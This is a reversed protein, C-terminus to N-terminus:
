KTYKDFIKTNDINCNLKLFSVKYKLIFNHFYKIKVFDKETTIFITEEDGSKIMEDIDSKTYRHHDPYIYKKYIKGCESEVLNIFSSPKSIGAFLIIKKDRINIRHYSSDFVGNSSYNSVIINHNFKTLDSIKEINLEKNNQIIIGARKLSSLPERLIGSPIMLSNKLSKELYEKADVMVIDIDRYIKRHQFADDLLIYDAKFNNLILNAGEARDASAVIYVKNGFNKLNETIMNLEDGSKDIDDSFNNGDFIIELNHSKRGYGRSIIGINYGKSLLYEALYIIFPTKGTGGMSINGVSIIKSSIKAPKLINKDYLFNKCKVILYFLITFPIAVIRLINVLFESM